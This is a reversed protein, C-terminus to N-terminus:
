PYINKPDTPQHISQISQVTQKDLQIYHKGSAGCMESAGRAERASVISKNASVLCVRMFYTCTGSAGQKAMEFHKCFACFAPKQPTLNLISSFKTVLVSM